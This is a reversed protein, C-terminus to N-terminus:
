SAELGYFHIRIGRLSQIHPVPTSTGTCNWRNRGVQITHLYKSAWRIKSQNNVHKALNQQGQGDGSDHILKSELFHVRFMEKLTEKGTQTCQGDPLKITSVKNTVQKAMIMKLRAGGLVDNIEQCYRRWSSQKAQRIEKNYCTLTEKYTDWQGTRKAINFLKRTKARPGSLAENWWPAL